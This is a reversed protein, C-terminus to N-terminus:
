HVWVATGPSVRHFIFGADALKMNVCGNSGATLYTTGGFEGLSRTSLDHMGIHQDFPMWYQVPITYNLNRGTVRAGRLTFPSAMWDISFKGTRTSSGPKGTVVDASLALKGDMYFYLRQNALSIEILNNDISTHGEYVIKPQTISVAEVSEELPYNNEMADYIKATLAHEDVGKAAKGKSVLTSVGHSVRYVTESGGDKKIFERNIGALYNRIARKEVNVENKDYDISLWKLKDDTTPKITYNKGKVELEITNDLKFQVEKITRNLDKVIINPLIIARNLNVTISGRELTNAIVEGVLTADLQNGVVEDVVIVAGESEEDAKFYADKSKIPDEIEMIKNDKIWKALSKEDVSMAVPEYNAGTLSVIPWMWANQKEIINKKIAAEDAITYELSKLPLEIEERNDKVKLTINQKDLVEQVTENDYSKVKENYISTNFIINNSFYVVGIGYIILIIASILGIRKATKKM